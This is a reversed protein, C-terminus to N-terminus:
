ILLGIAQDNKEIWDEELAPDFTSEKTEKAKPETDDSTSATAAAAAVATDFPSKYDKLSPRKIRGSLVGWYKNLM